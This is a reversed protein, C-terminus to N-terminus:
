AACRRPTAVRAAKRGQRQGIRDYRDHGRVVRGAFAAALRDPQRVGVGHSPPVDRGPLRRADRLRRGQVDRTSVQLHAPPAYPVNDPAYDAPKGDKGVYARLLTFDGTHRPWMFNDIEGGYNGITTRRRMCWACTACNSSASWTSTPATTCTPSAAATARKASASPSPPRPRRMSPTTTRAARSAAARRRPHPRHHPRLRHHGARPLRSQGATRRRPRRRHLRRPDPRARAQRQVPDRRLRCPPQDAGPRRKSVFAGTAGGVKVVANMPPKTLDALDRPDGKFGAAKCSGPSTPCSRRCGCARTPM